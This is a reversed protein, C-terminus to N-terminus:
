EHDADSSSAKYSLDDRMAKEAARQKEEAFKGERDSELQEPPTTDRCTDVNETTHNLNSLSTAARTIAQIITQDQTSNTHVCVM